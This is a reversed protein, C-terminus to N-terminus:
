LGLLVWVALNRLRQFRGDIERPYIKKHAEYFSTPADQAAPANM